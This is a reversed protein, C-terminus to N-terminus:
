QRHSMLAPLFRRAVILGFEALVQPPLPHQDLTPAPAARRQTLKANIEASTFNKLDAVERRLADIEQRREDLAQQSDARSTLHQAGLGVLGAALLATSAGLGLLLPRLWALLRTDVELSRTQEPTVILVTSRAM